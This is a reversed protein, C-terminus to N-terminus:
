GQRPFKVVVEDGFTVNGRVKRRKTAPPEVTIRGEAELRALAAKYHNKLYPQGVSHREYIDLMALRRGAFHALLLEELADLPRAMEFLLPQRQVDPSYEFSPVGQSASSSCGAMVEKMIEYSKFHKSAFILHHSTRTGDENKFRFPLVFQSGMQRVALVIHQVIAAEREDPPLRELRARLNDARKRGFLANIHEHVDPNGLGMNILGYNLYIACDCGWTRLARNVLRLSFGKYGFPDIYFFAPLHQYQEFLALLETGYDGRVVLPRHKLKRMGKLANIENRLAHTRAEDADNFVTVLTERMEADQIARALLLLPAARSAEDDRGPGAYMDFYVITGGRKRAAARRAKEWTWLYNAILEAKIRSQERSESSSVGRTM